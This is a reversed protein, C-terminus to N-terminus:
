QPRGAPRRSSNRTTPNRRMSEAYPAGTTQRLILKTTILPPAHHTSAPEIRHRLTAFAAKAIQACSMRVTTLPPLMFQAIHVDDFGIVSLDAPAQKGVEFLRHLVGIATLDNSCVVATPPHSLALLQTMAAMGGELTHDSEPMLEPQAKLHHARMAKEFAQLRLRASAQELPGSVFAITQHGLEVLHAVAQRIGEDYNVRVADIKPFAPAGDMVVLPVSHSALEELVPAERGFMMVAVGDVKRQLMRRVSMAISAPDNPTSALLVEYGSEVALQEFRQILEPFFPNTIETVMLGIIHSRGSVLARAQPDPQYNLERVARWVRDTMERNVSGKRNTVRSVTSISVGARQAVDRIDMRARPKSTKSRKQM